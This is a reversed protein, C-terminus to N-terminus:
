KTRLKAFDAAALEFSLFDFLQFGNCGVEFRLPQHLLLDFDRVTLHGAICTESGYAGYQLIVHEVTTASLNIM